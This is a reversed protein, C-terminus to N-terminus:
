ISAPLSWALVRSFKSMVGNPFNDVLGPIFGINSESKLTGIVPIPTSPLSRIILLDVISLLYLSVAPVILRIFLGLVPSITVFVKFKGVM